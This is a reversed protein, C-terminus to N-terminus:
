QTIGLDKIIWREEGGLQLGSFLSSPVAVTWCPSTKWNLIPHHRFYHKEVEGNNSGGGGYGDGYWKWWVEVVGGGCWWWVVEVVVVVVVGGGDNRNQTRPMNERYKFLYSFQCHCM